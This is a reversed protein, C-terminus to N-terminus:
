EGPNVSVEVLDGDNVGLAQRVNVPAVIELVDRPYDALLPIVLAGAVAGVRALFCKAACFDPSPPTIAVGGFGKLIELRAQEGAALKVNFTGAVPEFGLKISFQESVWSLGTFYQGEGRGSVVNGAFVFSKSSAEQSM